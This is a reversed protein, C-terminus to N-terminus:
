QENNIIMVQPFKIYQDNSDSSDYNDIPSAFRCSGGDFLTEYQNGYLGPDRPVYGVPLPPLDVTTFTDINYRDDDATVQTTDATTQTRDFTTTGGPVWQQLNLDWHESLQSDLTYRDIEFDVLNLQTGFFETINYQLLKSKGPKTYAIVWAPTFGLVAGDEQKSLMWRPLVKSEQGIQDVVEERMNELSNPYVTTVPVGNDIAPYKIPVSPPVSEGQANVLNDVVQSYVVEYIVNDNEDLARATKFEGLVLQKNYHNLELAAFYDEISAPTLGFAHQYIVRNASGFNPDDPRYVIDPTIVDQNLLLTDLLLRDERPPMAKCYLVNHPGNFEKNILITFQKTVSVIGNASYAEVIFVYTLDFTTPDADLRTAFDADFTTTDGDLSFTKFSVQGAINGSPLLTLGQPLKSNSGGAQLRYQLVANGHTAEVSLTSITGNDITGLDEDTIWQVGTEIDGVVTMSTIYLLSQISPDIAKYVKVGFEFEEETLGVYPLNGSLWGTDADLSLGAPLSGSSITYQVQDGDPDKGEFKYAFYNDHRYSGIDDVNNTIYPARIAISDATINGSDATFEVTDATMGNRSYVFMEFTRLVVDKGDTLQITFQYNQSISTTSFDFPNEDFFTGDRDWGAQAAGLDIIPEAFGSLLGDTTLTIGDPLEGAVVTMSIIDEPDLDTAEFQFEIESGDFWEGIRGAPTIWEPRDQGSVTLTFTRDAIRDEDDVVRIAFKSTTNESVASPVGKFDAVSVPIGEITGNTNVQVGAPLTGAILSYTVKSPDGPFDPDEAELAIRYFKGEPVVGLSGPETKWVPAQSM